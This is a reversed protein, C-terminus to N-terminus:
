SAYKHYAAKIQDDDTYIYELTTKVDSHGMLRQIEHLDMGRKYLNTAFTRRFRHPHTNDVGARTGIKRILNRIGGVTYKRGQKSAFLVIHEDNRENLYKEIHDAAVDSMFTKRGKGGKGNQVIVMRERINIDEISLNTLEECRVGSSVLLEILAREKESNCASRLADMQVASFPLRVKEECKIPSIKACPNRPIMEETFMWQFFASVYSRQNEISSNQNGKAKLDALYYRLDYASMETYPKGVLDSLKRCTRVYQKVTKDAKGDIKICAVYRKLIRDNIDEHRVTLDTVRETVDYNQLSAIVQTLIRDRDMDPCNTALRIEIDRLLQDKM